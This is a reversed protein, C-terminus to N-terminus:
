DLLNVFNRQSFQDCVFRNDIVRSVPRLHFRMNHSGPYKTPGTEKPVKGTSPCHWDPLAKALQDHPNM